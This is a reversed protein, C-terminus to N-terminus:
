PVYQETISQVFGDKTAIRFPLSFDSNYKELHEKFEEVTVSKPAGGEDWNIINYLTDENAQLFMSENKPNHIYFGNPMDKDTDINLEKLRETDDL